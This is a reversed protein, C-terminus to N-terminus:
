VRGEGVKASSSHTLVADPARVYVPEVADAEGFSRALAAHFRARPVHLDSGDPPVVAGARELVERYRVAGDGVCVTGAAPRLEEPAVARPGPVFVERRRADVVPLVGEGGAPCKGGRQGREEDGSRAAAFFEMRVPFDEM